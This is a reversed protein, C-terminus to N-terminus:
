QRLLEQVRPDDCLQWDAATATITLANTDDESTGREIADQQVWLLYDALGLQQIDNCHYVGIELLDYDTLTAITAYCITRQVRLLKATFM